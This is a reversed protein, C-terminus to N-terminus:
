LIYWNHLTVHQVCLIFVHQATTTNIHQQQQQKSHHSTNPCCLASQDPCLPSSQRMHVTEWSETERAIDKGRWRRCMWYTKTQSTTHDAADRKVSFCLHVKLVCWVSQCVEWQVPPRWCQRNLIWSQSQQKENGEGQRLVLWMWSWSRSGPQMIPGCDRMTKNVDVTAWTMECASCFVQRATMYKFGM